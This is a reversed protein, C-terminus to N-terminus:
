ASAAHASPRDLFALVAAVIFFPSVLLAAWHLIFFLAIGVVLMIVASVVAAFPALLAGIVGLLLVWFGIFGHSQRVDAGMMDGIFHFSSYAFNVILGIVFGVVGIILAVTRM